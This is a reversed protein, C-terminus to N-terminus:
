RTHVDFGGFQDARRSPNQLNPVDSCGIQKGRRPPVNYLSGDSNDPDRTRHAARLWLRGDSAVSILCALSTPACRLWHGSAVRSQGRLSGSAASHRLICGHLPLLSAAAVAAGAVVVAQLMGLEAAHPLSAVIHTGLMAESVFPLDAQRDGVFM